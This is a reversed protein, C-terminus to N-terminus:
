NARGVDGVDRKVQLLGGPGRLTPQPIVAARVILSPHDIDTRFSAGARADRDRLLRSTASPVEIQRTLRSNWAVAFPDCRESPREGSSLRLDGLHAFTVDDIVEDGRGHRWGAIAANIRMLARIPLRFRTHPNNGPRTCRSSIATPIMSSSRIGARCRGPATTPTPSRRKKSAANSAAEIDSPSPLLFTAHDLPNIFHKM